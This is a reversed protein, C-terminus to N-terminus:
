HSKIKLKTKDLQCLLHMLQIKLLPIKNNSICPVFMFIMVLLRVFKFTTVFSGTCLFDHWTFCLYSVEMVLHFISIPDERRFSISCAVSNLSRSLEVPSPGEGPLTEKFVAVKHCVQPYLPEVALSFLYIFCLVYRLGVPCFGFYKICEYVLFVDYNQLFSVNKVGTLV